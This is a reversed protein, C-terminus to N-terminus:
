HNLLACLRAHGSVMIVLLNFTDRAMLGHTIPTSLAASNVAAAAQVADLPRPSPEGVPGDTGCVAFIRADSTKVPAATEPAATDPLPTVPPVVSLAPDSVSVVIDGEVNPMSM